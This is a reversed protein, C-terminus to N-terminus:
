HRPDTRDQSIRWDECNPRSRLVCGLSARRGDTFHGYSGCCRAVSGCALEINRTALRCQISPKKRHNKEHITKVTKVNKDQQAICVVAGPM